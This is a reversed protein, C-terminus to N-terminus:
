ASPLQGLAKKIQVRMEQDSAYLDNRRDGIQTWGSDRGEFTNQQRLLSREDWGVPQAVTRAQSRLVTASSEPPSPEM